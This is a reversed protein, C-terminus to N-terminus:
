AGAIVTHNEVTERGASLIEIADSIALVPAFPEGEARGRSSALGEAKQVESVGLETEPREPGASQARAQPGSRICPEHGMGPIQDVVAIGVEFPSLPELRAVPNECRDGADRGGAIMIVLFKRFLGLDPPDIGEPPKLEREGLVGRLRNMFLGIIDVVLPRPDYREIRHM